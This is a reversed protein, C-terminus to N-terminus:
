IFQVEAKLGGLSRALQVLRREVAESYLARYEDPVSLIAIGRGLEISTKKLLAETGGSLRQALRLARGWAIVREIEDILDAARRRTDALSTM